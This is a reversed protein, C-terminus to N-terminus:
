LRKKSFLPRGRNHEQVLWLGIPMGCGEHRLMKSSWENLEGESNTTSCHECVFLQDDFVLGKMNENLDIQNKCMGCSRIVM